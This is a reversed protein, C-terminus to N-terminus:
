ETLRLLNIQRAIAHFTDAIEVGSVDFYHSASSACDRMAAQGASPAEFGIAFVVIGQDRAAACIRSLRDNAQSGSVTADYANYIDYWDGYGVWGDHYPQTYMKHAVARTGFRAFLEAHTMRRAQDGGDPRDRYRMSWGDNEYREWFWIDNSSGSWDRVMLSFRDDLPNTTGRDDIWVDSMGTRYEPRLDYQTTNQGDTMVVVFKLAEHDHYAAPRDAAAGPVQGDEALASVVPRMAPDLLAVGWKMGLDISTNGDAGLANIRSKLRSVDASHITIASTDGTRCWPNPIETTSGSTSIMDFHGLRGLTQTPDVAVSDFAASPFTACHSYDHTEELTFYPALSEGINVTANYPVISVTTLGPADAPQIVTEIFQSAAVRMNTIRSGRMSGSVDLVLSIEVNQVKEQATARAPATLSPFGSMRLFVTDLETEGEATVVRYNLGEDVTVSSLAAAMGAKAVYDAVVEAPPQDQELDAAALVARDITGQLDARVAEQRMIDVAAGTITLMLVTMLVSFITMNGDESWLM